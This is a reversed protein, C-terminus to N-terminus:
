NTTTRRSGFRMSKLLVCMGVILSVLGIGAVQSAEPIASGPAMPPLILSQVRGSCNSFEYLNLVLVGNLGAPYSAFSQANALAVLAKAKADSGYGADNPASGSTEGELFWVARQFSRNDSASASKQATTVSASGTQFGGVVTNLLGGNPNILYQSYLWATRVDLPDKNASTQGSFGGRDAFTEIKAYYTENFDISENRELCFTFFDSASSNTINDVRFAGGSFSSARRAAGGDFVKVQQGTEVLAARVTPPVLLILAAVIPVFFRM